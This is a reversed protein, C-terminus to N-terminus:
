SGTETPNPQQNYKRHEDLLKFYTGYEARWDILSQMSMESVDKGKKEGEQELRKKISNYKLDVKCKVGFMDKFATEMSDRLERELAHHIIFSDHLPLIAYGMKSFHLMVKEAMQSDLYQLDIGKGTCFFEEIPKHKKEFADMVPYIDKQGTSPIESPLDLDKDKHVSEHLAKRALEKTAANVMAQLMTKVFQRFTDDNSYGELFYVDEKPMPQKAMAYLMNIHLGSFDLEVVDKDNLRIYHRYERPVNQWWGDYFRGGQEWSGNNFIRRLRKKTFDIAGKKPDKRLITNLVELESDKAYLLIAHSELNRNILRLNERMQRTSDTDEYEIPKKKTDKLIIIEESEDRKIMPPVVKHEEKVLSILKPTARMRSLKSRVSNEPNRYGIPGEAYGSGQLFDVVKLTNWYGFFLASYRSRQNFAKPRRSYRIYMTPDAQNAVYLDLVIARIHDKLKNEHEKIVLGAEQMEIFIQNLASKVEPYESIRWVDLPRSNDYEEALRVKEKKSLTKRPM